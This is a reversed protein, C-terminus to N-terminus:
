SEDKYCYERVTYRCHMVLESVREVTERERLKCSQDSVKQKRARMSINAFQQVFGQWCSEICDVAIPSECRSILAQTYVGLVANATDLYGARVLVGIRGACCTSSDLARSSTSHVDYEYKLYSTSHACVLYM